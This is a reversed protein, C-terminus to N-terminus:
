STVEKWTSWHVDGSVLEVEVSDPDFGQGERSALEEVIADQAVEAASSQDGSVRAHWTGFGDAWCHTTPAAM